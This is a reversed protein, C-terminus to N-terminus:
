LLKGQEASKEVEKQVRDKGALMSMPMRGQLINDYLIVITHFATM